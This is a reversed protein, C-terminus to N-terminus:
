FKLFKPFILFTDVGWLIIGWRAPGGGGGGGGGRPGGGGGGGALVFLGGVEGFFGRAVCVLCGRLASGWAFVLTM